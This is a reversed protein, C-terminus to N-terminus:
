RTGLCNKSGYLKVSNKWIKYVTDINNKVVLDEFFKNGEKTDKTISIYDDTRKCTFKSNKKVESRLPLQNNSKSKIFM